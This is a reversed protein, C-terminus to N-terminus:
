SDKKPIDEHKKMLNDSQFLIKSRSLDEKVKTVEHMKQMNKLSLLSMGISIIVLVIIVVIIM